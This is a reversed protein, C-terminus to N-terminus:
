STLLYSEALMMPLLEPGDPSCVAGELHSSSMPLPPVTTMGDDSDSIPVSATEPVATILWTVVLDQVPHKCITSPLSLKKSFASRSISLKLDKRSLWAWLRLCSLLFDQVSGYVDCVPIAILVAIAVGEILLGSLGLGDHWFNFPFAFSVLPLSRVNSTIM